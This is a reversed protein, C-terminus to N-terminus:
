QVVFGDFYVNAKRTSPDSCHKKAEHLSLNRKITRNKHPTDRYFRRIKYLQM